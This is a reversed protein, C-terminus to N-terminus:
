LEKAYLDTIHDWNYNTYAWDIMEQNDTVPSKLIKVVEDVWAQKSEETDLGFSFKGYEYGQVTEVPVMKGFKNKEKFVGFDSTVPIAGGAQAKTLSICCIEPFISPYAFVRAKQYLKSVESQSLRGLNEIGASEMKAVIDNRWSMMKENDAHANDFIEFGYAWQLKAEPVQEKVRMFLEPLVDLSRDPSSTNILLMPDRKVNTKILEFGNPVVMIKDDPISPLLSRHYHSKVMVKHIKVLRQKTFEGDKIVDHLEV